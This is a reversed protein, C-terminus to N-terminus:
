GHHAGGNGTMSRVADKAQIVLTEVTSALDRLVIDTFGDDRGMKRDILTSEIVSACAQAQALRALAIDIPHDPLDVAGATLDAM